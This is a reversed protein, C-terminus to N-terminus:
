VVRDDRWLKFVPIIPSFASKSLYVTEWRYEVFRKGVWLFGTVSNEFGEIGDLFGNDM